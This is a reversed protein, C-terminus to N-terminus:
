WTLHKNKATGECAEAEGVERGRQRSYCLWSCSPWSPCGKQLRAAETLLLHPFSCPGLSGTVVTSVSQQPSPRQARTLLGSCPSNQARPMFDTAEMRAVRGLHGQKMQVTEEPAPDALWLHLDSTQWIVLTLLASSWAELPRVQIAM